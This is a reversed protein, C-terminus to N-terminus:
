VNNGEYTSNDGDVPVLGNGNLSMFSDEGHRWTYLKLGNKSFISFWISVTSVSM